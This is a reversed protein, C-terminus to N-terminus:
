VSYITPLTLHTYSVTAPAPYLDRLSETAGVNVLGQGFQFGIGGIAFVSSHVLGMFCFLLIKKM